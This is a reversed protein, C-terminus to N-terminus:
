LCNCMLRDLYEVEFVVDCAYLQPSDPHRYNRLYGNNVLFLMFSHRRKCYFIPAFPMRRQEIPMHLFPGEFFSSKQIM